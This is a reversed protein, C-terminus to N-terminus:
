GEAAVHLRDKRALRLAEGAKERGVHLSKMLDSPTLGATTELLTGVYPALDSGTMKKVASPSPRRPTGPSTSRSPRSVTQSVPEPAAELAPQPASRIEERARESDARAQVQINMGDPGLVWARVDKQWGGTTSESIAARVEDPFRSTLIQRRVLSPVRFRWLPGELARVLDLAYRRADAMAAALRHEADTVLLRKVAAKGALLYGFFLVPLVAHGVVAPLTHAAAMNLALSALALIYPLTRLIRVPRHKWETLIDLLYLGIFGVETGVPVTWATRGFGLPALLRTVTRLMEGFAMPMLAIGLVVVAVALNRQGRSLRSRAHLPAPTPTM